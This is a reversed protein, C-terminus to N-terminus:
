SDSRGGVVAGADAGGEENRETAGLCCLSRLAPELESDLRAKSIFGVAGAALAMKAYAPDDHASVMIVVVEPRDARMRATAVFGDGDPLVVDMLVIGPRATRALRLGDSVTSAVGCVPLGLAGCMATLARGFVVSDDVILVSQPDTM